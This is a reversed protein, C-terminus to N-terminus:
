RLSEASGSGSGEKEVSREKREVPSRQKREMSSRQRREMSSRQKREMSSRQRREMSSRQKREVSGEKREVSGRELSREKSREKSRRESSSSKREVSGEKRVLDMGSSSKLFQVLIRGVEEPAELMPIHGVGDLVHHSDKAIEFRRKVVFASQMSFVGDQNGSILLRPINKSTLVQAGEELWRDWNTQSSVEKGVKKMTYM